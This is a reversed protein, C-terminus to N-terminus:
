EEKEDIVLYRRVISIQARRSSQLKLEKVEEKPEEIIQIKTRELNLLLQGIHRICCQSTRLIQWLVVSDVIVLESM